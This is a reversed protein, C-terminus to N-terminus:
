PFRIRLEHRTRRGAGGIAWFKSRRLANSGKDGVFVVVVVVEVVEEGDFLETNRLREAGGWDGDFKLGM